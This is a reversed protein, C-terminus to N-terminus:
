LSPPLLLRDVYKMASDLHRNAESLSWLGHGPFMKEFSCGHLRRLSEAYAVTDCDHTAQLSALGGHFVTDGPFLMSCGDREILYSVMDRSHGPTHIVRIATNQITMVEGDSLVRSIPCARFAYDSPYGGARKAAALSIAEEDGAELARATEAGALVPIDLRDHLERAGGAHDLHYHTLLLGAVAEPGIGDRRLEDLIRDTERGVGADILWYEGGCSVAYANCDLPHTLSVGLKGSAILHIGDGIKM